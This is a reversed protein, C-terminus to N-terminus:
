GNILNDWRTQQTTFHLETVAQNLYQLKYKAAQIESPFNSGTIVVAILTKYSEKVALGLTYIRDNQEKM